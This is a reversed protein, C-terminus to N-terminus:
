SSNVMLFGLGALHGLHRCLCWGRSEGHSTKFCSRCRCISLSLHRQHHQIINKIMMKWWDDSDFWLILFCSPHHKKDDNKVLWWIMLGYFWCFLQIVISGIMPDDPLHDAAQKKMGPRTILSATRWAGIRFYSGRYHLKWCEQSFHFFWSFDILIIVYM